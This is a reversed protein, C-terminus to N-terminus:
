NAGLQDWMQEKRHRPKDKNEKKKLKHELERLRNPSFSGRCPFGIERFM